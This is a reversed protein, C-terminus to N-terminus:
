HSACYVLPWVHVAPRQKSKEPPNLSAIIGLVSDSLRASGKTKIFEAARRLVEVQKDTLKKM